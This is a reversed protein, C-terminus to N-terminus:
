EAASRTILSQRRMEELKEVFANIVLEVKSGRVLRTPSIAFVDKSPATYEPLITEYVGSNLEEEILMRAARTYGAGKQVANLIIDADDATFGVRVPAQFEVGDKRIPFYGLTKDENHLIFKLRLLDEPKEPRGHADLYEPSAFFVTELSAIKRGYGGTDGLRGTRIALDYGERVVDVLRDELRLVIDLDPHAKGLEILVPGFVMRGLFNGVNVRITGSVDKELAEVEARMLDHRELLKQVHSHVLGGARTASVGQSSRHLLQQGLYTELQRIQQSVASQSIGQQQAAASLSGENVAVLFTEYLGLRDM